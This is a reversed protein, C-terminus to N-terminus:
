KRMFMVIDSVKREDGSAPQNIVEGDFWLTTSGGGDLNFATEVGHDLFLQQLTPLDCGESYGDSRGDVVILLYHLPGLQGIATRPELYGAGVRLISSNLKVAESDRVLEPGFEFTHLVGRELLETAVVSQKGSRDTVVTLDGNAEVVLLHRTSKNKRFVEGGRIIIGNDHFSYYDGNIAVLPSHREAIDSLAETRAGYRENSFAYTFQSPDTLQIDVAFYVFKDQQKREIQVTISDDEYAWTGPAQTPEPTPEATAVVPATTPATTPTATAAPTATQAAPLQTEEGEDGDSFMIGAIDTEPTATVVPAMTATPQPVSSATPTPAATIVPTQTPAQTIVAQPTGTVQAIVNDEPLYTTAQILLPTFLVLAIVGIWRAIKQGDWDPRPLTCGM